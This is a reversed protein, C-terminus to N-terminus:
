VRAGATEHEAHTATGNPSPEEGDQVDLHIVGYSWGRRRYVVSPRDNDVDHFLFFDHGVLEMRRVAEALNMPKTAHVKERVEIPSDGITGFQDTAEETAETDIGDVQPALPETLDATAAAVSTRRRGRRVMRKDHARRLREMLKECALDVAAQRDDHRAEARVVPGKSRLTIEVRESTKAQRPNPEHSVMVEIRQVRPELQPVKSLKDDLYDRLRDSVNVNRGTIAIEM